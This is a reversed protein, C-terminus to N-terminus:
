EASKLFIGCHQTLPELNSDDTEDSNDLEAAEMGESLGVIDVPARKSQETNPFFSNSQLNEIEPMKWQQALNRRVVDSLPQGLRELHLLKCFVWLRLSSPCALAAIMMPAQCPIIIEPLDPLASELGAFTRCLEISLEEASKGGLGTGEQDLDV